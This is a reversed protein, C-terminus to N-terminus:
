AKGRSSRALGHELDKLFEDTYLGTKRFDAAVSAVDDKVVADFLRTAMKKYAASQRKLVRYETQPITVTVM